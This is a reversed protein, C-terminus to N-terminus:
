KEEAWNAEAKVPVCWLHLRGNSVLMATLGGDSAWRTKLPLDSQAQVVVHQLLDAALRRLRELTLVKMPYGGAALAKISREFDFTDLLKGIQEPFPPNSTPEM